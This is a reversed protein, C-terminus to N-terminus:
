FKKFNILTHIISKKEKEKKILPKSHNTAYNSLLIAYKIKIQEVLDESDAFEDNFIERKAELVENREQFSERENESVSKVQTQQCYNIGENLNQIEIKNLNYMNQM